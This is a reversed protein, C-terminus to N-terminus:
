VGKKEDPKSVGHHLLDDDDDIGDWQVFARLILTEEAGHKPNRRHKTREDTTGKGRVDGPPPAEIDVEGQTGHDQHKHEKRQMDRITGVLRTSKYM